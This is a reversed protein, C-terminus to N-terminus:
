TQLTVHNSALPWALWSGFSAAPKYTYHLSVSIRPVARHCTGGLPHGEMGVNGSEIESMLMWWWSRANPGANFNVQIMRFLYFRASLHLIHFSFCPFLLFYYIDTNACRHKKGLTFILYYNKPLIISSLVRPVSQYFSGLEWQWKVYSMEACSIFIRTDCVIWHGHQPPIMRARTLAGMHKTQHEQPVPWCSTHTRVEPWTCAMLVAVLWCRRQKLGSVLQLERKSQADYAM